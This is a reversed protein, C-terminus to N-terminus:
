TVNLPPPIVRISSSKLGIKTLHAIYGAINSSDAPLPIANFEECFYIFKKFNTKYARITSPAYAGDIKEMTEKLVALSYLTNNM